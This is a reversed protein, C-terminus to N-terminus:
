PASLTYSSSSLLPFYCNCFYSFAAFAINIKSVALCNSTKPQIKLWYNHSCMHRAQYSDDFDCEGRMYFLSICISLM